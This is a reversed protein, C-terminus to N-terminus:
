IFPLDFDPMSIVLPVVFGDLDAYEYGDHWSTDSVATSGADTTTGEDDTVTWSIEYDEDDDMQWVEYYFEMGEEDAYDMSIYTEVPAQYTEDEGYMCDEYGDNVYYPPIVEGDNCIFQEDSNDGCDDYGDEVYDYPIENLNACVFYDEDDVDDAADLFTTVVSPVEPVGETTASTEKTSPLADASISGLEPSITYMSFLLCIVLAASWISSM